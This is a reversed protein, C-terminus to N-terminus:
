NADAIRELASDDVDSGSQNDGSAGVDVRDNELEAVALGMVERTKRTGCVHCAEIGSVNPYRCVPCKWDGKPRMSSPSKSSQGSRDSDSGGDGDDDDNVGLGALQGTIEAVADAEKGPIVDHRHAVAREAETMNAPDKKSELEDGIYAGRTWSFSTTPYFSGIMQRGPNLKMWELPGVVFVDLDRQDQIRKNWDKEVSDLTSAPPAHWLDIFVRDVSWYFFCPCKRMYKDDTWGNLGIYKAVLQRQVAFTSWKPGWPLYVSNYEEAKQKVNAEFQQIREKQDVDKTPEFREDPRAPHYVKDRIYEQGILSRARIEENIREYPNIWKSRDIATAIPWKELEKEKKRELWLLKALGWLKNFPKDYIEKNVRSRDFGPIAVSFGRASYKMLRTEYTYSRRSNDILNYGRNLSRLARPTVYVREGDFAASCCDVDFGLIVEAPSKYLRLVVQVHRDPYECVWTLASKTRVILLEDNKPQEVFGMVLKAIDDTTQEAVANHIARRHKERLFGDIYKVKENAEEETLDYLFIDIDSSKFGPDNYFEFEEDQSFRPKLCGMISGGAVVINSWDMGDLLGNSFNSFRRFFSDKDVITKSGVAPPEQDYTMIKPYQDNQEGVFWDEHKYVDVLSAARKQVEANTDREKVFLIRLRDSVRKIVIDIAHLTAHNQVAPVDSYKASTRLTNVVHYNTMHIARGFVGEDVGRVWAVTEDSELTDVEDILRQAVKVEEAQTKLEIETFLAAKEDLQKTTALKRQHAAEIRRVYQKSVNNLKGALFVYPNAPEQSILAQEAKEWWEAIRHKRLYEEAVHVASKWKMANVKHFVREEDEIKSDELRKIVAENVEVGVSSAPLSKENIYADYAIMFQSLFAYPNRPIPVKKLLAVKAHKWVTAIHSLGAPLQHKAAAPTSKVAPKSAPVKAPARKKTVAKKAPTAKKTAVAVPVPAPAPESPGGTAVADDAKAEEELKKEILAETPAQAKEVAPANLESMPRVAKDGGISTSLKNVVYSTIFVNVDMDVPNAMCYSGAQFLAERYAESLSYMVQKIDGVGSM